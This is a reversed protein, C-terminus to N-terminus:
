EAYFKKIAACVKLVEEEELFPHMPLSLIQTVQKETQDLKVDNFEPYCQQKHIPVPYHILSQVGEQQLFQMLEDRRKAEIVFLHFIHFCNERVKPLQIEKVGALEKIYIQSFVNRKKNLEDLHSLKAILFAAQLEDLRSNIGQVEHHYRNKQGYNRLMKCKEYLEESDTTIAGGDGYGGLNKTPYFSFCGAFGLAGAKKGHYAAGAAQCADEIVVLNHKKAVTNIADMDVVQGYLHVPIIAKTRPTIHAELVSADMHFYEDIDIFVPTAGVNTIALTTAVASHSVTLVEDGRGINLAMLVIQIAELGNAVGVAYRAGIYSAFMKEFDGVTPGLIHWGSEMVKAFAADISEKFFKYEKKFDNM